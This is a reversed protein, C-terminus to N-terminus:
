HDHRHHLDPWHPHSHELREHDHWHSHRLSDPQGEHVHNHHGDDHTHEHTHSMAQHVHHHSHKDRILLCISAGLLCAASMHLWTLSENLLVVSLVLGFFPASAFIAQSRMAGLKQASSIYLTLSLGYCLAGILLAGSVTAVSFSWPELILGLSLNVAGAISGKLLTFHQPEVGDVVATLNNDLAWCLCAGALYLVALLGTAGEGWSLLVGACFVGLTGALGSKGIHERFILFAILGTFVSELSLWMSVTSAQALRLGMLLLVPAIIGGFLLAGSLRLWASRSLNKLEPRRAVLSPVVGLAAGLYLLGALQLPGFVNLLPKSAPAAAGFLVASVLAITVTYM